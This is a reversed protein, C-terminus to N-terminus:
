PFTTQYGALEADVARALGSRKDAGNGSRKQFGGGNTKEKVWEAKFSEWGRATAEEIAAELPWGALEAQREIRTLATQTLVKKRQRKFDQWITADVGDPKKVRASEINSLHPTEKPEPLAAQSTGDLENVPLAGKGTL